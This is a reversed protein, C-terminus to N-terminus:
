ALAYSPVLGLAAPVPKPFRVSLFRYTLAARKRSTGAASPQAKVSPSPMAGGKKFQLDKSSILILDAVLTKASGNL